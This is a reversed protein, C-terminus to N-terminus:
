VFQRCGAKGSGRFQSERWPILLTVRHRDHWQASDGAGQLNSAAVSSVPLPLVEFGHPAKDGFPARHSPM